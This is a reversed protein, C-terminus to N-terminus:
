WVVLSWVLRNGAAGVEIGDIMAALALDPLTIGGVAHTSM